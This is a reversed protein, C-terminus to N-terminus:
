LTRFISRRFGDTLRNTQRVSVTYEGYMMFQRCSGRMAKLGADSFWRGQDRRIVLNVDPMM